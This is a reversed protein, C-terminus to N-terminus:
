QEEENDNIQIPALLDDATCDFISALKKLMVIDPKRVGSEWQTVTSPVVGCKEALIAQTWGLAERYKRIAVM